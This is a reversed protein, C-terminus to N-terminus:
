QLIQKIFNNRYIKTIFNTIDDDNTNTFLKGNDEIFLVVDTFLKWEINYCEIRVRIDTINIRNIKLYLSQKFFTKIEEEHTTFIDIVDNFKM